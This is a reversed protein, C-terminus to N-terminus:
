HNPAGIPGPGNLSERRDPLDRPALSGVAAKRSVCAGTFPLASLRSAKCTCTYRPKLVRQRDRTPQPVAGHIAHPQMTCPAHQECWPTHAAHALLLSRLGLRRPLRFLVRMRRVSL